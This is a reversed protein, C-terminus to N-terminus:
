QLAELVTQVVYELQERSLEPYVPLALVEAAAKESVPFDDTDYGFIKFCEQLPLPYVANGVGAKQPRQRAEDRHPLHIVYKFTVPDIDVFVPRVGVRAIAGSTAFFTFQPADCVEVKM